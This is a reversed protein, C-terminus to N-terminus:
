RADREESIIQTSDTGGSFAGAKLAAEFEPILKRTAWYSTTPATPAKEAEAIAVEILHITEQTVSRRHVVALQKLKAHLLEPFSKIVLAPMTDPLHWFPPSECGLKETMAATM